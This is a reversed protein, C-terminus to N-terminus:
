PLNVTLKVKRNCEFCINDPVKMRQLITSMSDVYRAEYRERLENADNRHLNIISNFRKSFEMEEAILAGAKYWIAEALVLKNTCVFPEFSCNVSFTISLGDLNSNSELNESVKNSASLVKASNVVAFPNTHRFPNKCNHCGATLNTKYSDFTAAYGIFLHVRQGNGKYSKSVDAYSVEGSTATVAITDLLKNSILDYVFVNVSGTTAVHLGVKSIYLEYYGEQLEIEKGVLYTAQSSAVQLNETFIGVTMNELVSSAKFRPSFHTRVNNLVIDGALDIKSDLFDYASQAEADMAKDAELLGIGALDNIYYVSDPATDSCSGRVGILGDLCSVAM